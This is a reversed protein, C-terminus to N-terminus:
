TTREIQCENALWNSMTEEQPKHKFITSKGPCKHKSKDRFSLKGKHGEKQRYGCFIFLLFIVHLSALQERTRQANGSM